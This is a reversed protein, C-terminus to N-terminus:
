KHPMRKKILGILQRNYELNVSTNLSYLTEGKFRQSKLLGAKELTKLHGAVTKYPRNIETAIENLSLQGSKILLQVIEIRTENALAKLLRLLFDM